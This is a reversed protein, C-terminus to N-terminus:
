AGVPVAALLMEKNAEIMERVSRPKRGILTEVDDSIVAFYGGRLARGFSVMDDSNWSIGKVMQNDVPRRPIGMSDFFAYMGEDDVRVYRIARGTADGMMTAVQALSLLEPGTINYVRNEHGEGTLVAVACDVCDERWVLAEKGDEACSVWEGSAMINPGMDRVMADAYHGDRLATWALGSEQMMAETTGHDHMAEAPNDPHVGVFSTYVIHQVGAAVAAEIAARHQVVREGVRTGSILMLKGGGQFATRLSAPDDFDGHRVEAGLEAFSSLKAPTRTILILDQAAMKELLGQVISRGLQGSAGTIIIKTM